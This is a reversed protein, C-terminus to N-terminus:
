SWQAGRQGLVLHQEGQCHVSAAQVYVVSKNHELSHAVVDNSQLDDESAHLCLDQGHLTFM